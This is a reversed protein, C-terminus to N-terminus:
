HQGRFEIARSIREMGLIYASNRMSSNHKHKIQLLDNFANLMVKKLKAIVFSEDWIDGSRNQVWEFYSVTVGGANALIDPIVTVGSDSLVIDADSTIPGNALELIIKAKIQNVNDKHIVGELAALILVDVDLSLLEDNSIVSINEKKMKEVNCVDGQCFNARLSTFSKKYEKVKPIECQDGECFIGGSSDSVAVIKAGSEHLLEAAYSGANGFGQIAIRMGKFTKNHKKLFEELVFVGGQATAYLRGLSGGLDLPKGTVCGPSKYGIIREHEDMMWAMVQTNTYADPAPIDKNAAFIGEETGARFYSRSIRELEGISLEKTDIQVGGKAGGFPVNVVACKLSMLGSLINIENLDTNPHFRIGGKYPGRANNHQVRYANVEKTSGDDAQYSIKTSFINEPHIFRELLKEDLSITRATKTLLYHFDKLSKSSNM